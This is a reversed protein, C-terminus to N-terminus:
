KKGPKDDDDGDDDRTDGKGPKAKGSGLAEVKGPAVVLDDFSSAADAKSWLGVHGAEKFTGDQAHLLEKGDLWCTVRDGVMVARVTYWHGAGASQFSVGDLQSRKGKVVKYVRFNDELPNFRCIYYNDADRLRWVVGGGQDEKGTNARMKVTLDVDAVSTKENYCLNFESLDAGVRSIGLVNPGSPAGPDAAVTWTALEKGPKTAAAKWGQPLMGAADKDFNYTTTEDFGGGAAIGACSVVTAGLGAIRTGKVM